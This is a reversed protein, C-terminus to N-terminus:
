AVTEADRGLWFFPQPKVPLAQRCGYMGALYELSWQGLPLGLDAAVMSRGVDGRRMAERGLRHVFDNFTEGQYPRREPVDWPSQLALQRQFYGAVDM